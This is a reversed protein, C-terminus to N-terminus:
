PIKMLMKLIHICDDVLSEPASEIYEIQRAEWDVSDLQFPILQGETRLGVLPPYLAPDKSTSTIPIVFAYGYQHLATVSVM